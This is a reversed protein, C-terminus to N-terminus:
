FALGSLIILLKLSAFFIFTIGGLVYIYIYEHSFPLVDEKFIITKYILIIFIMQDKAPRFILYTYLRLHIVVCSM